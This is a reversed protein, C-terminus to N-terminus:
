RGEKLWDGLTTKQQEGIAIGEQYVPTSLVAQTAERIDKLVEEALKPQYLSADLYIGQLHSYDFNSGTLRYYEQNFEEMNDAVATYESSEEGANETSDGGGEMADEKADGRNQETSNENKERNEVSNDTNETIEQTNEMNMGQNGTLEDTKELIGEESKTGKDTDETSSGEMNEEPNGSSRERGQEMSETGMVAGDLGAKLYKASDSDVYALTCQYRYGTGEPIIHLSEVYTRDELAAQGSCGAVTGAILALGALMGMGKKRSMM